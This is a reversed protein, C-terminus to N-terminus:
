GGDDDYDDNNEFSGIFVNMMGINKYQLQKRSFEIGFLFDLQDLSTTINISPYHHLWQKIPQLCTVDIDSYIGGHIYTILYRFIDSKEISKLNTLIELSSQSSSSSSSLSMISSLSSSSSTSENNFTNFLYYYKYFIKNWDNDDYFKMTINDKYNMDHWSKMNYQHHHLVPIRSQHHLILPIGPIYKDTSISVTDNNHNHYNSTINNNSIKTVVVLKLATILIFIIIIMFNQKLM